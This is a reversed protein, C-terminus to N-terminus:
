FYSCCMGNKQFISSDFTFTRLVSPCPDCFFCFESTAPDSTYFAHMCNLVVTCLCSCLHSCTSHLDLDGPADLPDHQTHCLCHLAPRIDLMCSLLPIFTVLTSVCYLSLSILLRAVEREGELSFNFGVGKCDLYHPFIFYFFPNMLKSDQM